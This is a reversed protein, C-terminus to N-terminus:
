GMDPVEVGVAAVVVLQDVWIDPVEVGVAAVM